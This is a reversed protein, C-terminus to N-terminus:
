RAVAVDDNNSIKMPLIAQVHNYDKKREKLEKAGYEGVILTFEFWHFLLRSHDFKSPLQKKIKKKNRKNKSEM